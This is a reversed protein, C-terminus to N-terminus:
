EKKGRLMFPLDGLSIPEPVVDPESRSDNKRNDSDSPGRRVFGPGGGGGKARPPPAEGTETSASWRAIKDEVINRNRAYRERSVRIVKDFSNT